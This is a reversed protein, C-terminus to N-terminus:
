RLLGAAAAPDILGTAALMVVHARDVRTILRLETEIETPSLDGYIIRRTRGGIEGHLRGTGTVHGGGRQRRDSGRLRPAGV